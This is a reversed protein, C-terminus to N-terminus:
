RKWSRDPPSAITLRQWGAYLCNSEASAPMNRVGADDPYSYPVYFTGALSLSSSFSPSFRRHFLVSSTSRERVRKTDLPVFSADRRRSPPLFSLSALVLSLSLSTSDLYTSLGHSIILLSTRPWVLLTARLALRYKSLRLAVPQFDVAISLM